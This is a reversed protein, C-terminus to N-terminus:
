LWGRETALLVAQAGNPVGYKGYLNHMHSRVTSSTIRQGVGIEEYTLGDALGQLVGLEAASLPCCETVRRPTPRGGSLNFTAEGLAAEDVGNDRATALLLPHPVPRGSQHGALLDALAVIGAIPDGAPCHHREVARATREDLRWRRIILGGLTAHGYGNQVRRTERLVGGGPDTRDTLKTM